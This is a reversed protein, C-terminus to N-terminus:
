RRIQEKITDTGVYTEDMEISELTEADSQNSFSQRIRHGL